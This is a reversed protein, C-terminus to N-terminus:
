KHLLTVFRMTHLLPVTASASLRVPILIRPPLAWLNIEHGMWANGKRSRAFHTSLRCVGVCVCACVYMCVHIRICICLMSIHAVTSTNRAGGVGCVCVCVCVLRSLPTCLFDDPTGMKHVCVRACLGPRLRVIYNFCLCVCVYVCVCQCQTSKWNSTAASSLKCKSQSKLFREFHNALSKAHSSRTRRVTPGLARLSLEVELSAALAWQLTTLSNCAETLRAALDFLIHILVYVCVCVCDCM